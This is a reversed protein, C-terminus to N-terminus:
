FELHRILFPYNEWPFPSSSGCLNAGLRASPNRGPSPIHLFGPETLTSSPFRINPLCVQFMVQGGTYFSFFVRGSRQTVRHPGRAGLGQPAHACGPERVLGWSQWESSSTLCTARDIQATTDGDLPLSHCRGALNPVLTLHTPTKHTM